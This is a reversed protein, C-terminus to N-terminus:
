RTGLPYQMVQRIAGPIRITNAAVLLLSLAFMSYGGAAPLGMAVASVSFLAVGCFLMDTFGIATIERKLAESRSQRDNGNSSLRNMLHQQPCNTQRSAQRRAEGASILRPLLAGAPMVIFSILLFLYPLPSQQWPQLSKAPTLKQLLVFQVTGGYLLQAMVLALHVVWIQVKTPTSYRQIM